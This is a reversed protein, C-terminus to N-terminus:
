QRLDLHFKEVYLNHIGEELIQLYVYYFLLQYPNLLFLKNDEQLEFFIKWIKKLLILVM